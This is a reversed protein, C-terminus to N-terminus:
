LVFSDRNNKLWVASRLGGGVVAQQIVVTRCVVTSKPRCSSLDAYNGSACGMPGACLMHMRMRM